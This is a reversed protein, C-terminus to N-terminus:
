SGGIKHSNLGVSGRREHYTRVAEAKLTLFLIPLVIVM